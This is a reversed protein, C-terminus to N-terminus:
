RQPIKEPAIDVVVAQASKIETNTDGFANFFYIGLVIVAVAAASAYGYLKRTFSRKKAYEMEFTAWSEEQDAIVQNVPVDGRKDSFRVYWTEVWAKEEQSAIGQKYKLLLEEAIKSDM